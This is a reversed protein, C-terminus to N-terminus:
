SIIVPESDMQIDAMGGGPASRRGQQPAAAGQVAAFAPLSTAAISAAGLTRMFSRRSLNSRFDNSM